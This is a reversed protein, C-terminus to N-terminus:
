GNDHRPSKIEQLGWDSIQVSSCNYHRRWNAKIGDIIKLSTALFAKDKPIRGSDLVEFRKDRINLVLVWYHGTEKPNEKDLIELTPFSISECRNLRQTNNDFHKDIDTRNFCNNQFYTAIRLPMIRKKPRIEPGRLSIIAIEVVLSDMKKGPAMSNVLENRSIFFEDYNIIPKAPVRVVRRQHAAAPPTRSSNAIGATATTTTQAPTKVDQDNYRSQKAAREQMESREKEKRKAFEMKAKYCVEHLVEPDLDLAWDDGTEALSVDLNRPKMSASAVRKSSEDEHFSRNLDFSPCDHTAGAPKNDHAVQAHLLAQQKALPGLCLKGHITHLASETAHDRTPTRGKNKSSPAPCSETTAPTYYTDDRQKTPPALSLTRIDLITMHNGGSEEMTRDDTESKSTRQVTKGSGHINDTTYIQVRNENSSMHERPTVKCTTKAHSEYKSHDASERAPEAGSSSGGKTTTYARSRSVLKSQRFKNQKPVAPIPAVFADSSGDLSAVEEDEGSDSSPLYEEDEESTDGDKDGEEVATGQDGVARQRKAKNLNNKLSGGEDEDRDLKGIYEIFTGINESFELCLKSLM